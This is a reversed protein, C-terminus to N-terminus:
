VKFKRTIKDILDSQKELGSMQRSAEEAGTSVSDALVVIDNINKAIDDAVASQETAATAVQINLFTLNQISETSSSILSRINSTAELVKNRQDVSREMDSITKAASTQLKELIGSIEVTSDQSRKALTRVEDAVVAFGRGQEGARAAEIAANLALLNTQESISQIVGLASHIDEVNGGLESISKEVDTLLLNLNELQENSMEVQQLVDKTQSNASEASVRTTEANSAIESATSSMEDAAAAVQLAGEKQTNVSKVLMLQQESSTKAILNLETITEKLHTIDSNLSAIFRNFDKSIEDILDIYSYPLETTLDGNGNALDAVSERLKSLARYLISVAVSVLGIILLTVIVTIVINQTLISNKSQNIEGKITDVIKKTEDLYIGAIIVMDWEPVYVSYAFKETPEEDGPRIHYYKVFHTNDKAAKILEKFYYTGKADATNIFNKGANKNRVGHQIMTGESNLSFIYGQGDNFRISNLIKLAEPLGEKNPMKAYPEIITKVSDMVATLGKKEVELVSTSITKTTKEQVVSIAALMGFASLVGAILLPLLTLAYIQFKLSRLM